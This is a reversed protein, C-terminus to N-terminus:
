RLRRMTYTMRHRCIGITESWKSLLTKSNAKGILLKETLCLDYWRAECTYLALQKKLAGNWSSIKRKTKEVRETLPFFNLCAEELSKDLVMVKYCKQHYKEIEEFTHVQYYKITSHVWRVFVYIINHGWQILGNYKIM